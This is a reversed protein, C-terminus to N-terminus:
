RSVPDAECESVNDVCRGACCKGARVDTVPTIPFCDNIQGDPTTRDFHVCVAHGLTAVERCWEPIWADWEDPDCWADWTCPNCDDCGNWDHEGSCDKDWSEDLTPPERRWGQGDLPEESACGFVFFSIVIARGIRSAAGTAAAARGDLRLRHAM